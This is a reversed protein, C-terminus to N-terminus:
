GISVAPGQRGVEPLRERIGSAVIFAWAKRRDIDLPIGRFSPLNLAIDWQYMFQGDDTKPMNAFIMCAADPTFRYWARGM